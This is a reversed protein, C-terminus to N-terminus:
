GQGSYVALERSRMVLYGIILSLASWLFGLRFLNWFVDGWTILRGEVLAQTPRLTGFGGVVFVILKAIGEIFSEFLFTVVMGVNSWDVASAPIPGYLELSTALYPAILGAAAITFALLCAVPFSLFTACAIGIAALAALKVWSLLMARFFNWEFTSVNYLIQLDGDEWNLSGYDPRGPVARVENIITLKLTGDPRVFDTTLPLSHAVTPVYLRNDVADPDDNFIFTAPFEDHESDDLIHFRYRLN